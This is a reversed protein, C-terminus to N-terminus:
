DCYCSIKDDKFCEPPNEIRVWHENEETDGEAKWFWRKDGFMTHQYLGKHFKEVVAYHYWGCEILSGINEDLIEFADEKTPFWGWSRVNLPAEETIFRITSVIYIDEM